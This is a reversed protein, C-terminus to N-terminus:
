RGLGIVQVVYVAFIVEVVYFLGVLEFYSCIWAVYVMFM